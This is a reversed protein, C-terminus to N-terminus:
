LGGVELKGDIQVNKAVDTDSAVDVKDEMIRMNNNETITEAEAKIDTDARNMMAAKTMVTGTTGDLNTGQSSTSLALRAENLSLNAKELEEQYRQTGGLITPSAFTQSFFGIQDNEKHTVYIGAYSDNPTTPTIFTALLKGKPNVQSPNQNDM